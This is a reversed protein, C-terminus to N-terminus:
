PEIAIQQAAGSAFLAMLRTKGSGNDEAYLRVTNSAGASPATMETLQLYSGFAVGLDDGIRVANNVGVMNYQSITFASSDSGDSGIAWHHSFASNFVVQQDRGATDCVIEVMSKANVGSNTNRVTAMVSSTSSAAALILYYSGSVLPGNLTLLADGANASTAGFYAFNSSLSGGHPTQGIFGVPTYALLRSEDNIYPLNVLTDGAANMQQMIPTNNKAWRIYANRSSPFEIAFNGASHNMQMAVSEDNKYITWNDFMSAKTVGYTSRNILWSEFRVESNDSHKFASQHWEMLEAGGQEYFSEFHLGLSPEGSIYGQGGMNMNYGLRYVQDLRGSIPNMDYSAAGIRFDGNLSNDPDADKQWIARSGEGSGLILSSVPIATPAASAGSINGLLTQDAIAAVVHDANWDSSVVKGAAADDANDPIASVLSHTVTLM